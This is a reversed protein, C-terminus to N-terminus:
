QGKERAMIKPRGGIYLYSLVAVVTCLAALVINMNGYGIAEKLEGALEPGLTLGVNFLCSNLGYLQAYPGNEGFFTKTTKM